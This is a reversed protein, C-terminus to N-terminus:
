STALAATEDLSMKVGGASDILTAAQSMYHNIFHAQRDGHWSIDTTVECGIAHGVCFRHYLLSSSTAGIGSVGSHQLWNVGLWHRVVMFRGTKYPLEADSLYDANTFEPLLM